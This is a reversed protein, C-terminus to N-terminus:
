ASPKACRRSSFELVSMGEALRMADVMSIQQIHRQPADILLAVYCTRDIPTLGVLDGGIKEPQVILLIRRSDRYLDEIMMGHVPTGEPDLM